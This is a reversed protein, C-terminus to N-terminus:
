APDGHTRGFLSGRGLDPFLGVLLAALPFVALALGAQAWDSLDLLDALSATLATVGLAAATRLAALLMVGVSLHRRLSYVCCAAVFTTSAVASCVAGLLGFRPILILNLIVILVTSAALNRVYDAQRGTSYLLRCLTTEAGKALALAAFWGLLPVTSAFSRGFLPVILLPLLLAVGAALWGTLLFGAQLFDRASRRLAPSSQAAMRGLAPYVASGLLAVPIMGVEVFKVDLAYLGTGAAGLWLAIMLVDVRAYFLYLLESTAFPWTHRLTERLARFSLEIPSRGAVSRGIRWGLVVMVLGAIAFGSLSVSLSAGAGLILGIASLCAFLRCSFEILAPRGMRQLAMSPILLVRSLLWGVFYITLQLVVAVHAFREFGSLLLAALVVTALILQLLVAGRMQSWLRAREREAACAYARIGYEEYGSATLMGILNALAFAYAYEGTGAPGLVRSIATVLVFSAADAATRGSALWLANKLIRM